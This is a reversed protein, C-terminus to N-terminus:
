QHFINNNFKAKLNEHIDKLTVSHWNVVKRCCQRSVYLSNKNYNKLNKYSYFGNVINQKMPISTFYLFLINIQFFFFHLNLSYHISFPIIMKLSNLGHYKPGIYQGEETVTRIFVTKVM